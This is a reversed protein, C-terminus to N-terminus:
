LSKLAAQVDRMDCKGAFNAKFHKMVSPVSKDALKTIEAKIEEISMMKPLFRSVFEMQQALTKVNEERGAKEFAEKEEALEKITKQLVATVDADTLELNQARKDIEALKVKNLIVSLISRATADHNKLAAINADKLQRYLMM